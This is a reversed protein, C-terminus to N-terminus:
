YIFGPYEYDKEDWEAFSEEGLNAEFANDMAAILAYYAADLEGANIRDVLIKFIEESKKM